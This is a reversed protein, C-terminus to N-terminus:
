LGKIFPRASTSMENTIVHLHTQRGYFSSSLMIITHTKTM